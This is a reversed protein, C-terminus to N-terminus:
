QLNIALLNFRIFFKKIQLLFLFTLKCSVASNITSSILPEIVSTAMADTETTKWLTEIWNSRSSTFEIVRQDSKCFKKMVSQTTKPTHHGACGGNVNLFREIILFDTRSYFFLIVVYFNHLAKKQTKVQRRAYLFISKCMFTFPYLALELTQNNNNKKLNVWFYIL